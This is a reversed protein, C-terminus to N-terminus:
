RADLQDLGFKTKLIGHFDRKGFTVLRAPEASATCVIADGPALQATEMGDVALESPRDDLVDVRIESDPALVLSRDFLMHPAVPTLLLARYGPDIIPGRASFSYATSGTPTAVVIGDAAFTTFYEGDISVALRVTRGNHIKELVAENLARAVVKDGTRLVEVDLRMREEIQHEGAFFSLIAQKVDDPEVETLYGLNGHNVGLVPVGHDAVLRVSRLMSGDGGLSVALDCDEGLDVAAHRDLGLEAADADPVRVTHGEASLWHALDVAQSAAEERALNTMLTVTSMGM